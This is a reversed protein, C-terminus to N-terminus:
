LATGWTACLQAFREPQQQEMSDILDALFRGEREQDFTRDLQTWEQMAKKIGVM